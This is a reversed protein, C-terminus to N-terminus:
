NETIQQAKNKQKNTKTKHAWHRWHRQFTWEQSDRQNKM